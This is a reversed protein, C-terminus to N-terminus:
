KICEARHWMETEIAERAKQGPSMEAYWLSAGLDPIFIYQPAREGPNPLNMVHMRSDFNYFSFSPTKDEDNENSANDDPEPKSADVLYHTSYGNSIAVYFSYAKGTLNSKIRASLQTQRALEPDAIFRLEASKEFGTLRYVSKEIPCSQTAASAASVSSVSMAAILAFLRM